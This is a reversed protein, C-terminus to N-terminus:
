SGVSYSDGKSRGSRTLVPPFNIPPATTVPAISAKM